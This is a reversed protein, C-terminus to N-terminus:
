DSRAVRAIRLVGRAHRAEVLMWVAAALLIPASLAGPAVTRGAVSATLHGLANLVHITAYVYAAVVAWRREPRVRPTLAGLVLIAVVLGTLWAAFTFSPPFPGDWLRARIAAARPNYWALFDHTAEDVAHLAFAATLTAWALQFRTAVPSSQVNTV